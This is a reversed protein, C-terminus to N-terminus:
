PYLLRRLMSRRVRKEAAAHEVRQVRGCTQPYEAVVDPRHVLEHLMQYYRAETLGVTRRLEEHNADSYRPHTEAYDLITREDDTM